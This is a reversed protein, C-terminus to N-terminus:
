APVGARARAERKAAITLNRDNVRDKGDPNKGRDKDWKINPRWRLVGATVFPRINLRVGDNLDPNWGLPQEHDLKWRVFIDLPPEGEVILGLKRQLAQAAALRDDAGPIGANKDDRQRELWSGLYTFALKELRPRDLSHYNVLASFGDRRGDWIQWVLPRHNFLKCHQEFFDDRLWQEVSKGPAGAKALLRDLLGASSKTGYATAILARIREAADKSGPLAPLIVIGDQDALVDLGDPEQAPWRYGLLRAVAVQLVDKEADTPNGGFLWQTPDNSSPPLLGNHPLAEAVQEWRHLDFPVKVVTNCTVGLSKDIQRVQRGMEGSQCFAWIAPLWEPRKPSIVIAVNEFPEGTYLTVPLDGMKQVAVGPKGWAARGAITAKGNAAAKALAGKGEDWQLVLERGGYAVTENVTSQQRVWGGEV